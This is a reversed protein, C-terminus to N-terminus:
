SAELKKPKRTRAKLSFSCVSLHNENLILLVPKGDIIITQNFGKNSGVNAGLNGVVMTAVKIEKKHKLLSKRACLCGHCVLIDQIDSWQSVDIIQKLKLFGVFPFLFYKSPKPRRM